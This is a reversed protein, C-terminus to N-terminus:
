PVVIAEWFIGKGTSLNESFLPFLTYIWWWFVNILFFFIPQSSWNWPQLYLLRTSRINPMMLSKSPFVTLSAPTANRAWPNKSSLPDDKQLDPLWFYHLPHPPLLVPCLPSNKLIFCWSSISCNFRNVFQFSNTSSSLQRSRTDKSLSVGIMFCFLLLRWICYSKWQM